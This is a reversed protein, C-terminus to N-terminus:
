ADLAEKAMQPAKFSETPGLKSIARLVGSYLAIAARRQSDLFIGVNQKAHKADDVRVVPPEQDVPVWAFVDSRVTFVFENGDQATAQIIEAADTISAFDLLQQQTLVLKIIKRRATEDDLPM